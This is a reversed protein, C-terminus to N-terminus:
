QATPISMVESELVISGLYNAIKTPAVQMKYLLSLNENNFRFIDALNNKISGNGFAKLALQQMKERNQMNSQFLEARQALSKTLAENTYYFALDITAKRVMAARAEASLMADWVIQTHNKSELIARAAPIMDADSVSITGAGAKMKQLVEAFRRATVPDKLYQLGEDILRDRRMIYVNAVDEGAIFAKGAILILSAAPVAKSGIKGGLDYALILGDAAMYLYDVNKGPASIKTWELTVDAEPIPPPTKTRLRILESQLEMIQADVVQRQTGLLDSGPGAVSEGEPTNPDLNRLATAVTFFDGPRLGYQVLLDNLHKLNREARLKVKEAADMAKKYQEPSTARLPAAKNRDQIAQAIARINQDASTAAARAVDVRMAIANETTPATFQPSPLQPLKTRDIQGTMAQASKEALDRAADLDGSLAKAEKVLSVYERKM